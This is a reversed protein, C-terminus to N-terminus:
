KRDNSDSDSDLRISVVQMQSRRKSGAKSRDGEVLLPHPIAVDPEHQSAVRAIDPSATEEVTLKYKEQQSPLQLSENTSDVSDNTRDYDAIPIDM